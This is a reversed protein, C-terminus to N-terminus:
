YVFAGVMSMYFMAAIFLASGFTTVVDKVTVDEYIEVAGIKKM